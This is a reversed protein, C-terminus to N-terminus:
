EKLHSNAGEDIRSRDFCIIGTESIVEQQQL